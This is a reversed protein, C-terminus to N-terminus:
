DAVSVIDNFAGFSFQRTPFRITHSRIPDASRRELRFSSQNILQAPCLLHLRDALLSATTPAFVRILVRACNPVAFQRLCLLCFKDSPDVPLSGVVGTEFGARISPM